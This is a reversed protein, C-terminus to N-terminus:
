FTHLDFLFNGVTIIDGPFLIKLSFFFFFKYKDYTAREFFDDLYNTETKVLLIKSKIQKLINFPVTLIHLTM